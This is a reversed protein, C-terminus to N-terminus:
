RLAESTKNGSFAALFGPILVIVFLVVYVALAFRVHLFTALKSSIRGGEICDRVFAMSIWGIAPGVASIMVPQTLKGRRTFYFGAVFAVIGFSWWAAFSLAVTLGALIGLALPGQKEFKM